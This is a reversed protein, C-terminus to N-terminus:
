DTDNTPSCRSNTPSGKIDNKRKLYYTRCADKNKQKYEDDNKLRQYRQKSREKNAELYEEYTAYRRVNSKDHKLEDLKKHLEDYKSQQKPTLEKVKKLNEYYRLNCVLKSYESM